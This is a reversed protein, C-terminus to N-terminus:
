LDKNGYHESLLKEILKSKNIGDIKMQEFLKPNLSIGFKVKRDKELKMKRGM